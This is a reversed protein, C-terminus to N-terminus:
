PGNRALALDFLRLEFFLPKRFKQSPLLDSAIYSSKAAQNLQHSQPKLKAPLLTSSHGKKRLFHFFSITLSWVLKKKYFQIFTRVSKSKYPTNSISGKLLRRWLVKTRSGSKKWSNKCSIIRTHKCRIFNNKSSLRRNKFYGTRLFCSPLFKKLKESLTVSYHFCLKTAHAIKESGGYSVDAIKKQTKSGEEGGM